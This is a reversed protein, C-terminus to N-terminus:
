TAIAGCDETEWVTVCSINHIMLRAIALIWLAIIEATPNELGNIENLYRHDVQEKIVDAIVEIMSFDCVWDLGTILEGEVEIRVKYNHGHLRSCKHAAPVYPLRHAAEFYFDKFIKM